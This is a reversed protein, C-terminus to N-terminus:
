RIVLEYQVVPLKPTELVYDQIEKMRDDRLKAGRKLMPHLVFDAGDHTACKMNLDPDQNNVHFVHNKKITGSKFNYYYKGLLANYNKLMGESADFM